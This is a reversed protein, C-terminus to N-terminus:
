SLRAHLLQHLTLSQCSHGKVDSHNCTPDRIFQVQNHNFKLRVVHVICPKIICEQQGVPFSFFFLINVWVMPTLSCLIVSVARPFLYPRKTTKPNGHRGGRRARGRGPHPPPHSRLEPVPLHALLRPAPEGHPGVALVPLEESGPLAPVQLVDFLRNMAVRKCLICFVSFSISSHM